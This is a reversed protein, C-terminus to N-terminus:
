SIKKVFENGMWRFGDEKFDKFFKPDSNQKECLWRIFRGKIYKGHHGAAVLKNNKIFVFKVSVGQMYEVAKKHAQPLLDVVFEKELLKHNISRWHKDASLKNIKLKYDPILDQPKVMGFVASVIRVHDNFYKKAKPNLSAYDIANYVVGTYREIAPMTPSTLIAKNDAIAKELAKGKVDLIKEWGKKIGNIENLIFQVDKSAKKLPESEGGPKKGESPPILIITRKM